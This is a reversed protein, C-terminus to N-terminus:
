SSAGAIPASSQPVNSLTTKLNIPPGQTVTPVPGVDSLSVWVPEGLYTTPAFSYNLGGPWPRVFRQDGLTLKVDSRIDGIKWPTVGEPSPGYAAIEGSGPNGTIVQNVNGLLQSIPNPASAPAPTQAAAGADPQPTFQAPIYSILGQGGQAVSNRHLLYLLLPVGAILVALLGVLGKHARAWTEFRAM